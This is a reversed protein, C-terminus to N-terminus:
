QTAKFSETVTENLQIFDRALQDCVGKSAGCSIDMDIYIVGDREVLERKVASPHAPHGPPTFTWISKEDPRDVDIITWGNEVRTTAQPDKRLTAYAEQLSAYGLTNGTKGQYGLDGTGACASLGAALAVM